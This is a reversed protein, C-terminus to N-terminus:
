WGKSFSFNVRIVGEHVRIYFFLMVFLRCVLSMNGCLSSVIFEQGHTGGRQGSRQVSWDFIRVGTHPIDLHVVELFFNDVEKM